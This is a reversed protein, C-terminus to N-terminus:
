RAGAIAAEIGCWLERTRFEASAGDASRGDYVKLLALQSEEGARKRSGRV